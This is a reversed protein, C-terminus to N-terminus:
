DTHDHSRKGNSELAELREEIASLRTLIAEQGIRLREFLGSIDSIRPIGTGRSVDRALDEAAGKLQTVMEYNRRVSDLFAPSRMYYDLSKALSDLWLRRLAAPDSAEKMGALLAQSQETFQGFCGSWFEMLPSFDTPPFEPATHNTTSM